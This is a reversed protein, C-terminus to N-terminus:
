NDNLLKEGCTEIRAILTIKAKAIFHKASVVGSSIFGNQPQINDEEDLIDDDNSICGGLSTGGINNTKDPHYDSSQFLHEVVKKAQRFSKAFPYKMEPKAYYNNAVSNGRVKMMKMGDSRLITRLLNRREILVQTTTTQVKSIKFDNNKPKLAKVGRM